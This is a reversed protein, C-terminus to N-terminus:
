IHKYPTVDIPFGSELSELIALAARTSNVASAFPVPSPAGEAVAKVFARVEEVHGKDHGSLRGGQKQKRGNVSLTTVRFDDIVGIAGGGFVEIREKPSEPDGGLLYAITAVGGSSLRLNVIVEDADASSRVASVQTVWAGTLFGCLDVFHCVEGLIRGGGEDPNTV